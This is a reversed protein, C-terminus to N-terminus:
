TFKVYIDGWLLEDELSDLKEYLKNSTVWCSFLLEMSEGISCNFEAPAISSLHHICKKTDNFFERTFEFSIFPIAVTLGQIVSEEFGEVDIKCFKPLGYLAILRDLTTVTVQETKGWKYKMSFRGEHKWKNSMTSITPEEECIAIEGCGEHDGLAKDVIIVDKNNGFLKRLKRLCVQQPEICVVRAGLGLFVRTRHGYNAGVDFCLDEKIIFQSYFELMKMHTIVSKSLCADIYANIKRSSSSKKM